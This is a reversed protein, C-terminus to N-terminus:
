RNPYKVEWLTLGQARPRRGASRRDKKALIDPIDQPKRKGRGVEILTGAIIRVMHYLFGNGTVTLQIWRREREVSARLVTRVKDEVDTQVSCFSTFDHTGVLFAAAENMKEVDLPQRMHYAYRRQFVDPVAGNDILYRYTKEKADFRAHFDDGAKEAHVAVIDDPLIANLAPIWRESPITSNTDFHVVQGRAHVGADTRGSGVIVISEGTLEYLAQQLVEQVTVANSQIQFGHYRTGDYSVVVKM